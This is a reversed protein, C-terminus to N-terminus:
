QMAGQLLMLLVEREDKAERFGSAARQFDAVSGPQGLLGAVERVQDVSRWEDSRAERVHCDHPVRGHRVGRVLLETRVPGIEVSGNSVVWLPATGSKSNVSLQM